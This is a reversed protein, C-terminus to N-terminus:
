EIQVTIHHIRHSKECFERIKHLIEASSVGPEAVVHCSLSIKGVTIAWVHLDHISHVGRISRLGNELKAINIESPTREMLIGFINKLMPLTASVSFASFVLTCILDVVLWDPRIWIIAGGIMVGASQILDAMVHLYAGQLNINMTKAKAPSSLVMNTGDEETIACLEEGEQDDHCHNKDGRAHHHHHHHHHHHGHTHDHGLWIIMILNIIFGFSAIAFMIAGNVKENNHLIRDIAEYILIGSILWILQVSILAGLVEFRSFGFSQHSTAGWGSAWLSFLSISFGAVDTLLHAADTFVALSNAKVGGIVEAVMVLLYFFILRGLRGASRSREESELISNEQRSFTCVSECPSHPTLTVFSGESVVPSEIDQEQESSLISVEEYEM